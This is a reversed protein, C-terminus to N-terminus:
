GIKEFAKRLSGAGGNWPRPVLVCKLGLTKMQAVAEANDDVYIGRLRFHRVFEHKSRRATSRREGKRYSPVFAFTDIWEGFNRFVWEASVHAAKRPVASLAVNRYRHGHKRFWRLAEPLPKLRRYAGSLRFDDLSSLYRAKSLGLQRHPPNETILSYRIRGRSWARMLDNLTDDVDWIITKV